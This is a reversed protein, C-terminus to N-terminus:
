IPLYSILIGGLVLSAVNATLAYITARGKKHEKLALTFAIAEVAFIILEIFAFGFVWYAGLNPGSLVINLFGQTLLNILIFPIWSAKKRYGFAFFILGEILLTLGVRISVLLISRPLLQGQTISENAVNLILLNNYQSFTSSPLPCEFSKQGSNAILTAGELSPSSPTVMGYFFRYYAEWAKQEKKLQLADTTNGDAFRISLTLDDAPLSVIVTLCPPESSNAFATPTLIFLAMLVFIMYAVSKKYREM